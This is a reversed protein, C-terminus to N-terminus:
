GVDVSLAFEKTVGLQVLGSSTTFEFEVWFLLPTAMKTFREKFQLTM